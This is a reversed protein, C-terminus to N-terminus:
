CCRSMRSSSRWGRCTQWLCWWGMSHLSPTQTATAHGAELSRCLRQWSGTRMYGASTPSSAVAPVLTVLTATTPPIAKDALAPQLFLPASLWIGHGVCGYMLNVVAVYLCAVLCLLTVDPVDNSRQLTLRVATLVGTCWVSVAVLCCGVASSVVGKAHFSERTARCELCSGPRRQGPPTSASGIWEASTWTPMRPRTSLSTQSPASQQLRM